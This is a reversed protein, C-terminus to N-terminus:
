GIVSRPLTFWLLRSKNEVSPKFSSKITILFTDFAYMLSVGEIDFHLRQSFYLPLDSLM